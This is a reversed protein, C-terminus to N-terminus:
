AAWPSRWANVSQGGPMAQTGSAISAASPGAAASGGAAPLAVYAPVGGAQMPAGAVGPQLLFEGSGTTPLPFNNQIYFGMDFDLDGMLAGGVPNTAGLWDSLIRAATGVFGGVLLGQAARAGAFKGGIWSLGLSTAINLGYGTWGSNYTPLVMQPLIRAGAMGGVAWATLPLLESVPVSLFPNHRRRRRHSARM